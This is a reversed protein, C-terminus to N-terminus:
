RILRASVWPAATLAVVLTGYALWQAPYRLLRKTDYYSTDYTFRM